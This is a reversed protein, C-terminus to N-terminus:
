EATTQDMFCEWNDKIWNTVDGEMFDLFAKIQEDTPHDNKFHEAMFDRIGAEYIKVARTQKETTFDPCKTIVMGQLTDARGAICQTGDANGCKVCISENELDMRM